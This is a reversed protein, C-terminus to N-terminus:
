ADKRIKELERLTLNIRYKGIRSAFRERMKVKIFEQLSLNVIEKKTEAKTLRMAASVLKEDIDITTRM